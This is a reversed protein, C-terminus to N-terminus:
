GQDGAVAKATQHPLRRLFQEGLTRWLKSFFRSPEQVGEHNLWGGAETGATLFHDPALDDPGEALFPLKPDTIRRGNVGSLQTEYGHGRTM